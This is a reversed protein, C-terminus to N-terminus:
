AVDETIDDFTRHSCPAATPRHDGIRRAFVNYGNIYQHPGLGSRYWGITPLWAEYEDLHVHAVGVRPEDPQRALADAFKAAWDPHRYRVDDYRRMTRNLWRADGATALSM